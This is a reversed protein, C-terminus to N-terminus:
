VVTTIVASVALVDVPEDTMDFLDDYFNLIYDDCDYTLICFNYYNVYCLYYDGYHDDDIYIM